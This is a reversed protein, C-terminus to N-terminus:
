HTCPGVDLSQAARNGISAKDQKENVLTLLSLADDQIIAQNARCRGGRACALCVINSASFSEVPANMADEFSPVDGRRPTGPVSSERSADKSTGALPTAPKKAPASKAGGAKAAPKPKASALSAEEERYTTSHRYVCEIM